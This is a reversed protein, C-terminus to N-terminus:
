TSGSYYLVKRGELLSGPVELTTSISGENCSNQCHCLALHYWPKCGKRGSVRFLPSGLSYRRLSLCEVRGSSFKNKFYKEDDEKHLSKLFISKITCHQTSGLYYLMNRGELLSGPVGLTTSISGENCSNQCHCLAVLYWPKCGNRGSVRFLPIGLSYILLSISMRGM